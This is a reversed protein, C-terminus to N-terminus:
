RVTRAAKPSDGSTLGHTGVAPAIPAIPAIRARSVDEGTAGEAAGPGVVELEDNAVVTLIAHETRKM